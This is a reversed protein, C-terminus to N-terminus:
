RRPPDSYFTDLDYTVDSYPRGEDREAASTAYADAPAYAGRVAYADSLASATHPAYSDQPVYSEQPSYSDQPAYTPQPTYTPQPASPSHTPPATHAADPAPALQKVPESNRAPTLASTLGQGDLPRPALPRPARDDWIATLATAAMVRIGIAIAREDVDFAPQHLDFGDEGPVRTGLRALAGPIKELYWAFDEGGLSQPTDVVGDLGLVGTGAVTFMEASVNDNITPPVNREYKLETHVGYASAVSDILERIIEPARRWAEDDLCRITGEVVGEDPIANPANGANVRGWVLSLSSRPDVRRSLAAPLETVIKGLAFVLDATLHPRATHGGPGTVKVTIKDCAATIAGSRVGLKGVDLRPDCHLAFIRGVGDMGGTALVDLAGSGLEEAPQFVLRVRGPLLGAEAQAALFLGTGLLIATHVDHGCAHCVGPVTSRYPVRKEDEMPLADLDARLAVVAREPFDQGIDVILGTGKPLIAPRLGAAALRLATRRTTRHENNGTEPNAHLDRRFDILEASHAAWFEDLDAGLDNGDMAVM